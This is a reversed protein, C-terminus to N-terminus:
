ISRYIWAWRMYDQHESECSSCRADRQFKDAGCGCKFANPEMPSRRNVQHSSKHRGCVRCVTEGPAFLGACRM